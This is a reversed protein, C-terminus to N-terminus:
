DISKELGFNWIGEVIRGLIVQDPRYFCYEMRRIGIETEIVKRSSHHFM